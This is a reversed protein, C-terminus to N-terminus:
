LDIERGQEDLVSIALGPCRRAIELLREKSLASAGPLVDGLDDEDWAFAQPEAELCRGSSLCSRKDIRATPTM